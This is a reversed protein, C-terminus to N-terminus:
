NDIKTETGQLFSIILSSHYQQLSIPNNSNVTIIERIKTSTILKVM